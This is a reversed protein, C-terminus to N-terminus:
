RPAGTARLAASVRRLLVVAHYAVVGAVLLAVAPDLWYWGGTAAIVAGAVAVGAAAAADAATDLLVARMTLEANNDEDGEPDDDLDGRLVCAGALMVVAASASAVLVPVGHVEHSGAALRDIAGGIVVLTLVLLWGANILAAWAPAKPYGLPRVATPPRQALWLALLSAGIAAADALYDVGEAVVGLSHASLGVYLLELILTLNLALVLRLRAARSM